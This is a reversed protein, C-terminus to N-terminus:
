SGTVYSNAELGVLSLSLLTTIYNFQRSVDRNSDIAPKECLIFVADPPTLQAMRNALLELIIPYIPLSVTSCWACIFIFQLDAM